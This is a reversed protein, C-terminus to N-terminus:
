ASTWGITDIAAVANARILSAGFEAVAKIAISNTQFMSVMNSAVPTSPSGYDGITQTPADDLQLSAQTTVSLQIDSAGAWIGSADVLVLTATPVGASVLVPMGFAQGGVPSMAPFTQGATGYLTAMTSAVGATVLLYPRSLNTLPAATLLTLMDAFPDATATGVTVGDLLIDVFAGDVAEAVSNRLSRSLFSEIGVGSNLLERTCSFLGGVKVPELVTSAIGMKSAPIAMGAGVVAADSSVFVAGLVSQLPMKVLAGSGLMEYFASNTRLADAFGNALQRYGVLEGGWGGAVAAKLVATVRDTARNATAIALADTVDGRGLGLNRALSVFEIARHQRDEDALERLSKM